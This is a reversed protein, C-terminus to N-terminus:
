REEEKDDTRVSVARAEGSDNPLPPIPKGRDQPHRPKHLLSRSGQCRLNNLGIHALVVWWTGTAKSQHWMILRGCAVCRHRLLNQKWHTAAGRVPSSPKLKPSNMNKLAAQGCTGLSPRQVGKGCECGPGHSKLHGM